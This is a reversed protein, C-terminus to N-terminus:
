SFGYDLNHISCDQRFTEPHPCAYADQVIVTLRLSLPRLFVPGTRAQFPM